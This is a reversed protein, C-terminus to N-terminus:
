NKESDVRYNVKPKFDRIAVQVEPVRTPRRAPKKRGNSSKVSPGIGYKKVYERSVKVLWKGSRFVYFGDARVEYETFVSKKKTKHQKWLVGNGSVRCWVGPNLYYRYQM